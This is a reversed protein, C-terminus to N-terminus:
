MAKLPAEVIPDPMSVPPVDTSMDVPAIEVPEPVVEDVKEPYNKELTEIACALADSWNQFQGQLSKLQAKANKPDKYIDNM